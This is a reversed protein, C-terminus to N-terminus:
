LSIVGFNSLPFFYMVQFSPCLFIRLKKKERFGCNRALFVFYLHEEPFPCSPHFSHRSGQSSRLNEKPLHRDRASARGLDALCQLVLLLSLKSLCFVATLFKTNYWSIQQFLGTMGVALLWVGLCRTGVAEGLVWM